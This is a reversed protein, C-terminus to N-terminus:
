AAALEVALLENISDVLSLIQYVLRRWHKEAEQYEMTGQREHRELRARSNSIALVENLDERTHSYDRVFDMLRNTAELVKDAAILNQIEESRGQIDNSEVM